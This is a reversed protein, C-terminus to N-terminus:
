CDTEAPNTFEKIDTNSVSVSNLDASRSAGIAALPDGNKGDLSSEGDLPTQRSSTQIKLFTKEQLYHYCSLVVRLLAVQLLVLMLSVASAIILLVSLARSVIGYDYPEVSIHTLAEDGEPTRETNTISFNVAILKSYNADEYVM